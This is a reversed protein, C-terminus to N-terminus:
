SSYQKRRLFPRGNQVLHLSHRALRQGAAWRGAKGPCWALLKRRVVRKWVCMCVGM